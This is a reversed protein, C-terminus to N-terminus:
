RPRPDGGPRRASRPVSDPARQGSDARPPAPQSDRAPFGPTSDAALTDARLLTDAITTDIAAPVPLAAPPRRRAAGAASADRRVSDLVANLASDRRPDRSVFQLLADRPRVDLVRAIVGAPLDVDGPDIRLRVTDPLDGLFSYRLVPPTRYLKLLERRRGAVLARIRPMPRGLILATDHLPMFAVPLRAEMPEEAGAVVWLVIAFFIAALKLPLRRTGALYLRAGLRTPLTRPARRAPM